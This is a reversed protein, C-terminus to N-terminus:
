TVPSNNIKAWGSSSVKEAPVMALYAVALPSALRM